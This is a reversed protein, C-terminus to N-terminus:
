PKPKVDSMQFSSMLILVEIRHKRMVPRIGDPVPTIPGDPTNVPESEVPLFCTGESLQLSLVDSSYKSNCNDFGYGPTVLIVFM